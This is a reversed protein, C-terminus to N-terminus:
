IYLTTWIPPIGYISILIAIVGLRHHKTHSCRVCVCM